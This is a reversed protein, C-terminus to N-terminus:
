IAESEILWIKKLSEIETDIQEMMLDYYLRFKEDLLLDISMAEM